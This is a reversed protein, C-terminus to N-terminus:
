KFLQAVELSLFFLGFLDKFLLFLKLELHLEIHRLGLFFEVVKQKRIIISKIFLLRLVYFDNNM